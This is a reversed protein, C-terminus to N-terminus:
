PNQERDILQGDTQGGLTQSTDDFFSSPKVDLAVAIRILMPLSPVPIGSEVKSLFSQSCHAIRGLDVMTMGKEKRFLRLHKGLFRRLALEDAGERETTPDYASGM